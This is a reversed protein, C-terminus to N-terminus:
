QNDNDEELKIMIYGSGNRSWRKKTRIDSVQADDSFLLGNMADLLLGLFNNLDPKRFPITERKPLYKSKRRYFTCTLRLPVHAPFANDRHRLLRARIFEQADATRQPTYTRVKNGTFVVRPRGKAVPETTIVVRIVKM